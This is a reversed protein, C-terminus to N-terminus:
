FLHIINFCCGFDQSLMPSSGLCLPNSSYSVLWILLANLKGQCEIGIRGELCKSICLHLPQSALCFARSPSPSASCLRRRLQSACVPICFSCPLWSVLSHLPPLSLTKTYFQPNATIYKWRELFRWEVWKQSRKNRDTSLTPLTTCCNASECMAPSGSIPGTVRSVIPYFDLLALAHNGCAWCGRRRPYVQHFHM